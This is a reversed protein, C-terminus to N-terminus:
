NRLSQSIGHTVAVCSRPHININFIHAKTEPLLLPGDFTVHLKRKMGVDLTGKITHMNSM